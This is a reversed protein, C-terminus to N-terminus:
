KTKQWLYASASSVTTYSPPNAHNGRTNGTFYASLCLLCSQVFCIICRLLLLSLMGVPSIPGQNATFSFFKLYLFGHLLAKIKHRDTMHSTAACTLYANISLFLKLMSCPHMTVPHSESLISVLTSCKHSMFLFSPSYCKKWSVFSKLIHVRRFISLRNLAAM